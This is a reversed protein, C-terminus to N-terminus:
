AKRKARRELRKRLIGDVPGALGLLLLSWYNVGPITLACVLALVFAASITVNGAVMRSSVPNDPAEVSPDGRVVLTIVTLTVSNVLMTGIYFALTFWSTDFAAMIATPLPLVVITFAWFLTLVLIKGNYRAVHEFIAHHAVWLRAIVVFSIVFSAIESLHDGLLAGVSTGPVDETPVLEVLPLILLTIAIATVADTFFVIRELGRTTGM